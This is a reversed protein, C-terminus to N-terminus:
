GCGPWGALEGHIYKSSINRVFGVFLLAAKAYARLYGKSALTM